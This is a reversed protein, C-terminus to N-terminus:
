KTRAQAPQKREIHLTIVGKNPRHASRIIDALLIRFGMRHCVDRAIATAHVASAHDLFTPTMRLVFRGQRPHRDLSVALDAGTADDGTADAIRRFRTRMAANAMVAAILPDVRKAKPEGDDQKPKLALAFARGIALAHERFRYVDRSRAVSRRNTPKIRKGVKAPEARGWAALLPQALIYHSAKAPSSSPACAAIVPSIEANGQSM